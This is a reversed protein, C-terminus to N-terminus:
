IYDTANQVSEKRTIQFIMYEMYGFLIDTHAKIGPYVDHRFNREVDERDIEFNKDLGIFSRFGKLHFCM